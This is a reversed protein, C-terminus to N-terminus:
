YSLSLHECRDALYDDADIRTGPVANTLDLRIKEFIVRRSRYVSDHQLARADISSSTNLRARAESLYMHSFVDGILLLHCTRSITRGFALLVM